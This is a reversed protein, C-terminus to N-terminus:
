HPSLAILWAKTLIMKTKQPATNSRFDFLKEWDGVEPWKEEEERNDEGVEVSYDGAETTDETAEEEENSSKEERWMKKLKKAELLRQERNM